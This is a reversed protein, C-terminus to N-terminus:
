RRPNNGSQGYQSNLRFNEEELQEIQKDRTLVMEKLRLIESNQKQLIDYLINIEEITHMLDLQKLDLRKERDEKIAKDIESQKKIDDVTQSVVSVSNLIMQSNKDISTCINKHEGSLSISDDSDNGIMTTLSKKSRSKGILKQCKRWGSVNMIIDAIVVGILSIIAAIVAGIWEMKNVGMILISTFIFAMNYLIIFHKIDM